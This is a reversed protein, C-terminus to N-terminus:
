RFFTFSSCTDPKFIEKEFIKIKLKLYTIILMFIIFNENCFILYKEFFIIVLISFSSVFLLSSFIIVM